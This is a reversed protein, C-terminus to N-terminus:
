RRKRMMKRKKGNKMKREKKSQMKKLQQFQVTNLIAKMEQMFAIQADLREHMKKYREESSHAQKQMGEKKAHIRQTLKKELIPAIQAQQKSSLDLALTMKKVALSTKQAVTFEKEFQKQPGKQAQSNFTCAMALALIQLTKKM